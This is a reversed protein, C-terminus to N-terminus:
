LGAEALYGDRAFWLKGLRLQAEKVSAGICWNAHIMIARERVAEIFHGGPRPSEWARAGNLWREPDFVRPEFCFYDLSRCIAMQDSVFAGDTREVVSGLHDLLWKFAVDWIARESSASYFCGGCMQNEDTSPPLYDPRDSQFWLRCASLVEATADLGSLYPTPDDLLVTDADLFLFPVFGEGDDRPSIDRLISLKALAVQAYERKGWDIPEEGLPGAATVLPKYEILDAANDSLAVFHGLRELSRDDLCYMDLSADIGVEKTSAILNAALRATGATTFSVIRYSM